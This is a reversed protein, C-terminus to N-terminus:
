FDPTFPRRASELGGSESPSAFNEPSSPEEYTIDTVAGEEEEEGVTSLRNHGHGNRRVQSSSPDEKGRMIASARGGVGQRQKERDSTGDLSSGVVAAHKEESSLGVISHTSVATAVPAAAGGVGLVRGWKTFLTLLWTSLAKVQGEEVAESHLHKEVEDADGMESDVEDTGDPMIEPLDREEDVDSETRGLFDVLRETGDLRRQVRNFRGHSSAPYRKSRDSGPSSRVGFVRDRITFVRRRPNQAMRWLSNIDFYSAEYLLADTEAAAAEAQSLAEEIDAVIQCKGALDQILEAHDEHYKRLVDNTASTVTILAQSIAM